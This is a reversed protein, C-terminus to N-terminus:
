LLPVSRLVPPARDSNTPSLLFACHRRRISIAGEGLVELKKVLSPFQILWTPARRALAQAVPNQTERVLQGLAELMPYYAEKGGFGEVCQGRAVRLNPRGATQQQFVDVLTTKGIGAEGTIFILQRRGHLAKRLSGDLAALATARGVMKTAVDTSAELPIPGSEERVPAIFQYGRKHFTEIFVAQGVRDGLAKRIALIYRRIVEQNVYTGPWLAELIEDQPVLRQSHEVLYRLVDFAKPALPVREERHWLCHNVTDLRFSQFLKMQAVGSQAPEWGLGNGWRM